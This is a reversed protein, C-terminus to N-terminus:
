AVEEIYIQLSEAQPDTVLWHLFRTTYDIEILADGLQETEITGDEKWSIEGLSDQRYQYDSFDYIPFKSTGIGAVIEIEESEILEIDVGLNDISVWDGGTHGLSVTIASNWPVLYCRIEKTTATKEIEELRYKDSSATEGSVLYSNYGDRPDPQDDIAFIHDQDNIDLAVAATSWAEVSVPYEPLLRLTQGDPLSQLMAGSAIAVRRLVQLPTEDNAALDGSLFPWGTVGQWDLSISSRRCLDQLLADATGTGFDETLLGDDLIITPSVATIIHDAAGTEQPNTLSEVQLITSETVLGDLLETIVVEEGVSCLIYQDVDPFRLSASIFADQDDATLSVYDTDVLRGGVTVVLSVQHLVAEDSALACPQNLTLTITGDNASLVVPQDLLLTLLQGALVLPQDLIMTVQGPAKIPQDLIIAVTKTVGVLQNLIMTVMPLSKVWQNLVMTVSAMDRCPQNLIMQLAASCPQDLSLSVQYMLAVPQSLYLSADQYLIVPQALYLTPNNTGPVYTRLSLTAAAWSCSPSSSSGGWTAPDETAATLLFKSAIGLLSMGASYSLSSAQVTNSYGSPATLSTYYAGAGVIVIMTDDSVPTIAPPNPIGSNIGTASTLAVDFPNDTDVGRYVHVVATTWSGSHTLEVDTDPTAGMIKYSVALNIDYSDNAYLEVLETYGTTNIVLNIDSNNGNAMALVVIDGEAMGFSSLDITGPNTTILSSTGGVYSIAM